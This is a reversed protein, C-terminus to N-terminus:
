LGNPPRAKPGRESWGLEVAHPYGLAMAVMGGPPPFTKGTAKEWEKRMADVDPGTGYNLLWSNRGDHNAPLQRILGEAWRV